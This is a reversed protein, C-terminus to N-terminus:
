APGASEVEVPVGSFAANGSLADVSQEDTLDNLSAGAHGAAIGLAIGDRHHGWGHPLSVVGRTVDTTISVPVEVTGVRSRM